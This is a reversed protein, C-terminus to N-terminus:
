SANQELLTLRRGHDKMELKIIDNDAHMDELIKAIASFGDDVKSELSGVRDSLQRVNQKIGTIDQRINGIDM